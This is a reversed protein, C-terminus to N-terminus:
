VTYFFCTIQWKVKYLEPYDYYWLKFLLACSILICIYIYFYFISSCNGFWMCYFPIVCIDFNCKFFFIMISKFFHVFECTSWKVLMQSRLEWFELVKSICFLVWQPCALPKIPLPVPWWAQCGLVVRTLDTYGYLSPFLQYRHATRHCIGGWRWCVCVYM